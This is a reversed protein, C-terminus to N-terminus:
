LIQHIQEWTLTLHRVDVPGWRFATSCHERCETLSEGSSTYHGSTSHTSRPSPHSAYYAADQPPLRYAQQHQIFPGNGIHPSSLTSQINPGEHLEILPADGGASEALHSTETEPLSLNQAEDFPSPVPGSHQLTQGLITRHHSQSLSSQPPSIQHSQM